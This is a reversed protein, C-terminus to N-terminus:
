VFALPFSWVDDKSPQGTLRLAVRPPMDELCSIAYTDETQPPTGQGQWYTQFTHEGQKTRAQLLVTGAGTKIRNLSITKSTVGFERVPCPPPRIKWRMERRARTRAPFQAPTISQVIRGTGDLIDLGLLQVVQKPYISFRRTDSVGGEALFQLTFPAEQPPLEGEFGGDVPVLLLRKKKEEQEPLVIASVAGRPPRNFEVRIGVPQATRLWHHKPSLHVIRLPPRKTTTMSALLAQAAEIPTKRYILAIMTIVAALVALCVIPRADRVLARWALTGELRTGIQRRAITHVMEKELAGIFEDTFLTEIQAAALPALVLMEEVRARRFAPRFSLWLASAVSGFFLIASGVLAFARAMGASTVQKEILPFTYGLLCFVTLFLLAHLMGIRLRARRALAAYLQDPTRKETM